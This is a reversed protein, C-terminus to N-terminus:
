QPKEINNNKARRINRNARDQKRELKMKERPTVVGDAKTRRETRRIHRQQKNLAAAETNTLEGDQRGEAIRAHQAKQRTDARKTQTQAHAWLAVMMLFVIAFLQKM